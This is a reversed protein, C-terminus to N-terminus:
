YRSRQIELLPGAVQIANRDLLDGPQQALLSEVERRLEPDPEALEM